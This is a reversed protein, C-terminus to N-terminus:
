SEEYSDFGDFCEMYENENELINNIREMLANIVKAKENKVCELWDEHESGPVAFAITLAHNYTTMRQDHRERSEIDISHVRSAPLTCVLFRERGIPAGGTPSLPSAWQRNVM